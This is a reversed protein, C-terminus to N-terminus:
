DELFKYEKPNVWNIKADHENKVDYTYLGELEQWAGSKKMDRIWIDYSIMTERDPKEYMADFLEKAEECFEYSEDMLLMSSIVSMPISTLFSTIGIINIFKRRKM